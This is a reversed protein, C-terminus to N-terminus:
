VTETRHMIRYSTTNKCHYISKRIIEDMGFVPDPCIYPDRKYIICRPEMDMYVSFTETEEKEM